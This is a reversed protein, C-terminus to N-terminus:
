KSLVLAVGWTVPPTGIESRALSDLLRTFTVHPRVAIATTLRQVLAVNVTAPGLPGESPLGYAKTFGPWFAVNADLSLTSSAALASEIGYGIEFYNAGRYREVDFANTSVIEGPGAAFAARVIVESTSGPDGSLERYTYRSFTGGITLRGITREYGASLDYENFVPDYHPDLNVFVGFTLGKSAIWATPWVVLGESYPVGHWLYRSTVDAEAGWTVAPEAAQRNAAAPTSGTQASARAAAGLALAFVLLTRVM